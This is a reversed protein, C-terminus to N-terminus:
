NFFAVFVFAIIFILSGIGLFILADLTTIMITVENKQFRWLIVFNGPDFDAVPLGFYGNTELLGILVM